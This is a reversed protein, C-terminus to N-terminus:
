QESIGLCSDGNQLGMEGRLRDIGGLSSNSPASRALKEASQSAFSELEELDEQVFGSFAGGGANRADVRRATALGNCYLKRAISINARRQSEELDSLTSEDEYHVGLALSFALLFEDYKRILDKLEQGDVAYFATYFGDLEATDRIDRRRLPIISFTLVAATEDVEGSAEMLVMQQYLNETLEPTYRERTIKLTPCPVLKMRSQSNPQDSRLITYASELTEDIASNFTVLTFRDSPSHGTPQGLAGLVLKASGGDENILRLCDDGQAAAGAPFVTMGLLAFSCILRRITSHESRKM